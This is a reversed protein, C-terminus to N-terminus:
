YAFVALSSCLFVLPGSQNPRLLALCIDGVITLGIQRQHPALDSQTQRQPEDSRRAVSSALRLEKMEPWVLPCASFHESTSLALASHLHLFPAWNADRGSM